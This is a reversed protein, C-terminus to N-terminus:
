SAKIRRHGFPSVWDGKAVVRHYFYRAKCSIYGYNLTGPSGFCGLVRLFIFWVLNGWYRHAFHCFGLGPEQACACWSPTAPTWYPIKNSLLIIQFPWDCFTFIKYVFDFLARPFEWTGRLVYETPIWPFWGRLSFLFASRYHVLVTLSLRFSPHSVWHFLVQLQKRVFRSLPSFRLIKVM